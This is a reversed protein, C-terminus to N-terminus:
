LIRQKRVDAGIKINQCGGQMLFDTKVLGNTQVESERCSCFLAIASASNIKISKIFL